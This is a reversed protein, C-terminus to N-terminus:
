FELDVVRGMILRVWRTQEVRGEPTDWKARIAYIHPVGPVLPQATELRWEEGTWKVKLGRGSIDAEEPLRVVVVGKRPHDEDPILASRIKYTRGLTGPPPMIGWRNMETLTPKPLVPPLHSEQPASPAPPIPPPLASPPKPASEPPEPLPAPPLDDDVQSIARIAAAQRESDDRGHSIGVISMAAAFAWLRGCHTLM